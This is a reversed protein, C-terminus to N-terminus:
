KTREWIRVTYNAPAVENRLGYVANSKSADFSVDQRTARMYGDQERAYMNEKNTITFAGNYNTIGPSTTRNENAISTTFLGTINPLSQGQAGSNFASAEGGASRFFAGAFNSSIDSWTSVVGNINFLTAPESTGPFQVYTEGVPHAADFAVQRIGADGDLLLGSESGKQWKINAM